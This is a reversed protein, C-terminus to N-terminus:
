FNIFVLAEKGFTFDCMLPKAPHFTLMEKNNVSDTLKYYQVSASSYQTVSTMLTELIKDERNMNM